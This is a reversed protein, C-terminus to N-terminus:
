KNSKKKSAKSIILLILLVVGAVAAMAGGLCLCFLGVLLQIANTNATLYVILGIIGCLVGAALMGFMIYTATKRDM